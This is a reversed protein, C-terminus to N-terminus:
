RPHSAPVRSVIGGDERLASRGDGLLEHAAVKELGHRRLFVAALEPVAAAHSAHQRPHNARSRDVHQDPLHLLDAERQPGRAATLNSLRLIIIRKSRSPSAGTTM